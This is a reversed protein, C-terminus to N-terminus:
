VESLTMMPKRFGRTLVALIVLGVATWAAGIVKATEDLSIWILFDVLFGALPVLTYLV